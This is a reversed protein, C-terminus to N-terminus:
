DTVMGRGMKNMEIQVEVHEVFKVIALGLIVGILGILIWRGKSGAFINKLGKAM